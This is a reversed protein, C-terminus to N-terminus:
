NGMQHDSVYLSLIGFKKDEIGLEWGVWKTLFPPEFTTKHTGYQREKEDKHSIFMPQFSPKKLFFHFRNFFCLISKFFFNSGGFIDISKKGYWKVMVLNIPKVSVLHLKYEQEIQFPGHGTSFM